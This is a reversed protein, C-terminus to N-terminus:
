IADNKLENVGLKKIAYVYDVILFIQPVFFTGVKLFGNKIDLSDCVKLYTIRTLLFVAVMSVLLLGTCILLCPISIDIDITDTELYNKIATFLNSTVHKRMVRASVFSVLDFLMQVFFLWKRKEWAHKYLLYTGYFPILSKWWKEQWAHFILCMGVITILNWLIGLVNEPTICLKVFIDFLMNIVWSIFHGSVAM